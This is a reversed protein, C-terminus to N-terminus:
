REVIVTVERDATLAGDDARARLVYTGPDLFTAHAAYRGDPPIAPAQWTYSWPSNAGPRTDEWPRVQPPDFEVRGAGRYVFWTLHLGTVKGVTLRAQPISTLFRKFAAHHDPQYGPRRNAARPVGDDNVIAALDLPQGVKITRTLAGDVSLEPGKNARTAPDSAGPGLAGTESAIVVNDIFLDTKLSGYARETVGNATLTWILEKEGWDAPVQVRFIFRNRRPLFRTPQGQDAALPSFGNDPGVPVSVDEEWNDNMYGFVMAISGDANREWGEFAPHVPQGKSYSLAQAQPQGGSLAVLAVTALVLVIRTGAHRSDVPLTVSM